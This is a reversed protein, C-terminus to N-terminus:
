YESQDCKKGKPSFSLANDKWKLQGTRMWCMLRLECSALKYVGRRMISHRLLICFCNSLNYYRLILVWPCLLDAGFKLVLLIMSSSDYSPHFVVQAIKFTAQRLLLVEILPLGPFIIFKKQQQQETVLSWDINPPPFPVTESKPFHVCKCEQRCNFSM